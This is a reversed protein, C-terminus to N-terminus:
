YNNNIKYGYDTETVFGRKLAVEVLQDPNHEFNFNPAYHNFLQDKSMYVNVIKIDHGDDMGTTKDWCDHFDKYSDFYEYITEDFRSWEDSWEDVEADPLDLEVGVNSTSLGWETDLSWTRSEKDYKMHYYDVTYVRNSNWPVEVTETATM